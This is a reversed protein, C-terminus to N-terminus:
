AIAFAGTRCLFWLGLALQGFHRFTDISAKGFIAVADCRKAITWRGGRVSASARVTYWLM